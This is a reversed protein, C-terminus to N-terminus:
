RFEGIPKLHVKYLPGIQHVSREGPLEGSGQGKGGTLHLNGEAGLADDGVVEVSRNGTRTCHSGEGWPAVGANLAAIGAHPREATKVAM